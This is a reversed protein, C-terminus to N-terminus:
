KLTTANNNSANKTKVTFTYFKASGDPKRGFSENEAATTVFVFNDIIIGSANELWIEEGKKSLGFNPTLAPDDTIVTYFGKAPIITGDPIRMKLTADAQGGSDYVKYGGINISIASSNYLEIWDFDPDLGWSWVENMFIGNVTYTAAVTPATEPYLSSINQSNTAEIYYSV